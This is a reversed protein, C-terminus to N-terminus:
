PVGVIADIRGDLAKAVEADATQATYRLSRSFGAGQPRGASDLARVRLQAVSQTDFRRHSQLASEGVVDVEVRLVRRAEDPSETLTWGAAAAREELAQVAPIVIAPDGEGIVALQAAQASLPLTLLVMAALRHRLSTSM